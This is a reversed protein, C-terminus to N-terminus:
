DMLFCYMKDPLLKLNKKILSIGPELIEDAWGLLHSQVNENILETYLKQGPWLPAIIMAEIREEMINKQVAPLLSIPPHIWPFEKKWIQKLADIAVKGHGRITQMFRPLLNNFHQSFLDIISNLNMQFCTQRFIKEKLKYVGARSLRSQADAIQNKVGTLPTIQIQIGLKEITQNIQKIHRILSTSAGYKKIDFVATCNDNQINPILNAFEKLSQCIKTPRLNNCQTGQQQKNVTGIKQELNWLGNSDNENGERISFGMLQTSCRNDIDNTTTDTSIRNSHESQTKNGVLKYRSNFDQEKDDNYEMRETMCNISEPQGNCQRHTFSRLIKTKSLKSKRNVQSNIKSNDRNRDKDMTHKPEIESKEMNTTFLAHKRRRQVGKEAGVASSKRPFYYYLTLYAARVLRVKQREFGFKKRRIFGRITFGFYKLADIVRQTMNKLYEKNFPMARYTYYNNQFEFALNPQSETQVILHHFASSLDLSTGWDGLRITQKVKISDHMKFHFDAIQKNWAKASLIKRWKGNAKKIMFTLNYWKILKKRIPIAVNEKLEEELM